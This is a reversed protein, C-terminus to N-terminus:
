GQARAELASVARSVGRFLPTVRPAAARIGETLTLGALLDIVYHEGLYVLAVGLTTAIVVHVLFAAAAGLWVRSPKGRTAMVLRSVSRPRM